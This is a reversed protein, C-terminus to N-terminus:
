PSRQIVVQPGRRDGAGSAPINLFRGVPVGEHYVPAHHIFIADVLGHLQAVGLLPSDDIGVLLIVAEMDM